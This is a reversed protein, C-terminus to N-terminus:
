SVKIPYPIHRFAPGKRKFRAPTVAAPNAFVVRSGDFSPLAALVDGTPVSREDLSKDELCRSFIYNAAGRCVKLLPSRGERHAAQVRPSHVQRALEACSNYGSDKAEWHGRPLNYADRCTGDPIIRNGKVKSGLEPIPVWKHPRAAASLLEQFAARVAQEHSVNQSALDRLSAYYTQVPKASPKLSKPARPAPM